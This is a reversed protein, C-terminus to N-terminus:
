GGQIATIDVDIEKKEFPSWVITCPCDMDGFKYHELGTGHCYPCNRDAEKHGIIKSEEVTITAM